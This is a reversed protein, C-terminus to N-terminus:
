PVPGQERGQDSRRHEKSTQLGDGPQDGGGGEGKAKALGEKARGWRREATRDAIPIGISNCNCNCLVLWRWCGRTQIPSPRLITMETCHWLGISGKGFRTKSLMLNKSLREPGFGKDCGTRGKMSCTELSILNILSPISLIRIKARDTNKSPVSVGKECDRQKGGREEERHSVSEISCM